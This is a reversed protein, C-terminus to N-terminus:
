GEVPAYRDRLLGLRSPESVRSLGRILHRDAFLRVVGDAVAALHDNSYVRRPIALRVLEVPRPGGGSEPERGSPLTGRAITRAGTEMYIAAALRQAPLADADLHPLFRTADIFVAHSGAPRVVPVGARQLREALLATADLRSFIYGDELMEEIGQTMAALDAAPLGGDTVNGGYLRLMDWAQEKWRINDRFALIGGMNVLFDKKGSVTCGDGYSMMERLVERAPVGRYTPDYRAIMCANEMCRTGDFFVPIGRESCYAYVEKM